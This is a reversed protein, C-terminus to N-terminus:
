ASHRLQSGELPGPGRVTSRKRDGACGGAIPAGGRDAYRSDPRYRHQGSRAFRRGKAARRDPPERIRKERVATAGGFGNRGAAGAREGSDRSHADSECPCGGRGPQCVSYGKAFRLGLWYRLGMGPTGAAETFPNGCAANDIRSLRCREIGESDHLWLLMRRFLGAHTPMIIFDFGNARALQTIQTAAAGSLLVRPCEALPFETTLFSDLRDRALNKQEEAVESVPRVYLQVADHSYLDFVHVLTVRARFIAAARKVYAAM